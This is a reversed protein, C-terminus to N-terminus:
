RTEEIYEYTTLEDAKNARVAIQKEFHASPSGDTTSARWGDEGIMVRWTGVNVMPEICIVMGEKLLTGNGRRGYNPIEPKEHMDRGIGHGVYDRVVSLGEGEVYQQIAYGIDGIRCGAYAHAIGIELSKKTVDILHQKEKSLEGCGFTYASDGQWGNLVVGCDVSVIDGDKIIISDDPIGHVVIENLSVCLSAPYGYYNLFSPVAGHDRIFTEAMTDLQKTSVGPKIEKGIYALTKSVLRASERLLEIEEDTKLNIM